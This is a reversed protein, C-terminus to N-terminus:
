IDKYRHTHIFSQLLINEPPYQNSGQEQARGVRYHDTQSTTGVIHYVNKIECFLQNKPKSCNENFGTLFKNVGTWILSKEMRTDAAYFHM